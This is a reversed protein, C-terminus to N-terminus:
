LRDPAGCSRGTTALPALTWVGRPARACRAPTTVLHQPHLAEVKGVAFREREDGHPYRTLQTVVERAGLHFHRREVVEQRQTSDREAPCGLLDPGVDRRGVIRTVQAHRLTGRQEGRAAGCAVDVTTGDDERQM